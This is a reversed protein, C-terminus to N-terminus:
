LSIVDDALLNYSDASFHSSNVSHRSQRKHRLYRTRDLYGIILEKCRRKQLRENLKQILLRRELYDILTLCQGLDFSNYLPIQVLLRTFSIGEEDHLDMNMIAEEVFREYLARRERIKPVDMLDIIENITDYDVTIDYPDSPNNRVIWKSTLEPVSLVGYYFHFSLAGDLSQLLKPLDAPDIFGTGDPDFKEWARKFNRIESRSVLQAYNSGGSIYSFSDLIVSVFLNLMIYMSIVNWSMFMLYAYQKNGCDSDNFRTSPTCFPEELTFDDMIYNWGEGLSCRFLLILAKPVSRVNINDTTNPGIKTMGFIQNMAIAYVLFIVFWTFMLSIIRPLSASAFKLIQDIKDSRPFMFLMMSVLFTKNINSFASGSSIVYTLITSLWAGVSVILSIINWKNTIFVKYSQAVALMAYNAVFFSSNFIFCGVRFQNFTENGPFTECLLLLVHLCIMVNLISNWVKNKGVTMNYCFKRIGDLAEPNKRKSPKVQLLFRKVHYWQIQAETLYGRGTVKSYNDIIVSVFLTLIFVVSLFNFLIIFAGNFVNYFMVQPTGEGTSQMVNILLDTWGELSVIQYLSSFSSSFDDMHLLPQVYVRPSYVDWNYVSSQYENICDAMYSEGDNCYGLRGAFINLAWISFPYILTVSIVAASVIKGFGSIMTYQFNNRATESITLIRLARMAKLGSVIRSLNGDSKVFAVTEIWLSLLAVFDIWNWPSRFYGNPSFSVGDATIKILFELTFVATFALDIYFTWNWQGISLAVERRFLPTLYCATIVIGITSLFMLLAFAESVKKNPEIGDIREGFSSPVIRQCFRRLRNNPELVYFVSNFQPNEKLYQDQEKIVRQREELAKKAFTAPDFSGQLVIEKKKKDFFPNAEHSKGPRLRKIWKTLRRSRPPKTETLNEAELDEIEGEDNELFDNVASGSLLLNTVAKELNRETNSKFFRSKLKNIWDNKPQVTQLKTTVDDIFQRLQHKRKGEESVQFANAIVAIFINMVISNSVIFWFIIFISGIARQGPSSSYEQLGYMIDAWNETSTIVYLSMFSNPLTNMAFQLNDVADNPVTGEFYRALIISVVSLLLFYFLTLDFIAKANRLIKLWLDRTVSHALVVRYFRAIQFFSLWFYVHGLSKRVPDIIIIMTIIGLIFDCCNVRSSFFVRWHPLYLAFRLLIEALLISTLILEFRYLTNKMDDSMTSLRLCQTILDSNIVIVFFYEYKYYWQLWKKKDIVARSSKSHREKRITWFKAFSLKVGREARQRYEEEQEMQVVKFSSVIIAIFINMLWVTLIFIAFIFFLASGLNDSDMLDYMLDSFANVSMVVFVLEMSQFINDFNVTGSYPNEGSQCVSYMPCRFGKIDSSPTGDRYLYPKALGDLGIYSGCYQGDNRYTESADLPNTWLCARSLSSKFSQVGIIGFIVWFCIIVLSIDILQPIASYCSKLIINTGATLNCLRMIRLCSLSRFLMFHHNVDFRNISFLLSVWFCGTSIADLKQWNNKLYARRLNMDDMKKRIENAKFFINNKIIQPRAHGGSISASSNQRPVRVKPVTYARQFSLTDRGLPVPDEFCNVPSDVNEELPIEQQSDEDLVLSSHSTLESLEKEKQAGVKSNSTNTFPSRFIKKIDGIYRMLTQSYWSGPYELGLEKFMVKDDILGYAIIKLAAELTYIINVGILMYDAFNNGEYVYGGLASPNWQRFILLGTQLFLLLLLFSNVRSHSALRHCWIRLKLTPPFIGLSRGYLYLHDFGPQRPSRPEWILGENYQVINSTSKQLTPVSINLHRRGMDKKPSSAQSYISLNDGTVETTNIYPLGPASPSHTSTSGTLLDSTDSIISEAFTAPKDTSPTPPNNSGAIRDSIRTLINSFKTDIGLKKSDPTRYTGSELAAADEAPSGSSNFTILPIDYTTDNVDPYEPYETFGQEDDSDESDLRRRDSSSRKMWDGELEKSGLASALEEQIVRTNSFYADLLIEHSSEVAYRNQSEHAASTGEQAKDSDELGQDDAFPDIM